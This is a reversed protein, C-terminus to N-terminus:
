PGGILLRVQTASGLHQGDPSWADLHEDIWGATAAHTRARVLLWPSAAQAIGAAPRVAFELTPILVPTTLVASYSPALSDLLVVLREDDPPLDDDVLRLWATLEPEDVGAFPRSTGVPRIETHRSFPVMEVPLAFPECEEPPPAAPMAPSVDALHTATDAFTAAVHVHITGEVVASATMATVTRGSRLTAVDIEFPGRLSRHFHGTVFRLRPLATDAAMARLLVAVALGGHVGGFGWLSEPLDLSSTPTLALVRSASLVEEDRYM